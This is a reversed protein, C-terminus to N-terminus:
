NNAALESFSVIDPFFQGEDIGLVDFAKWHDGLESLKTVALATNKVGSHTAIEGANGYRCDAAFKVKLVRKGTIEHKNLRRLLETSKGAFMCGMILEIRGRQEIAKLCSLHAQLSTHNHRIPEESYQSVLTCNTTRSPTQFSQNKSSIASEKQM